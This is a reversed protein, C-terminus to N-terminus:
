TTSASDNRGQSTDATRIFHGVLDVLQQLASNDDSTNGSSLMAQDPRQYPGSALIQGPGKTFETSGHLEDLTELWAQGTLHAVSARSQLALVVRRLLKSCQALVQDPQESELQLRILQHERTAVERWGPKSQHRLLRALLLLILLLGTLGLALVGPAVRGGTVEPLEIDHLQQLLATQQQTQAPQTQVPQPATTQPITAQALLLETPSVSAGSPAPTKSIIDM